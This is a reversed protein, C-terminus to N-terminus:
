CHSSADAIGALLVDLTLERKCRLRFTSFTSTLAGVIGVERVPPTVLGDTLPNYGKRPLIGCTGVLGKM